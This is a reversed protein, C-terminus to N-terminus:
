KAPTYVATPEGHVMKVWHNSNPMKVLSVMPFNIKNIEEHGYVADFEVSEISEERLANDVSLLSNLLTVVKETVVLNM